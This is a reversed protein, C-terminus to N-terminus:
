VDGPGVKGGGSRALGRRVADRLFAPVDDFSRTPADAQLRKVFGIAWRHRKQELAGTSTGLVRAVEGHSGGAHAELLYLYVHMEIDELFRLAQQNGVAVASAIERALDVWRGQLASSGPLELDIEKITAGGCRLTSREIVNALERVNGPWSHRMLATIAERSLELEARGLDECARRLFLEALFPIDDM